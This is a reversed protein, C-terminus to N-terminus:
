YSKGKEDIMPVFRVPIIKEAKIQGSVKRYVILNQSLAPGVPIVLRGNNKLQRVLSDPLTAPACTVIIADYPAHDRWGKYGDGTKFFINQYGLDSLQSEARRALSENIEITFVSDCIEALIAAQYGSGTGVELTKDTSKLEALETMLAVIYPQSITQNKGIPLPRDAYAFRRYNAPVFLHRPVKRMAKLVNSDGIGRAAIQNEVMLRRAKHFRDIEPSEKCAAAGLLQLILIISFPFAHHIRFQM